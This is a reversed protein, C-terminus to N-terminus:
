QQKSKFLGYLTSGALFVVVAHAHAYCTTLAAAAAAVSPACQPATRACRDPLVRPVCAGPCVSGCGGALVRCDLLHGLCRYHITGQKATVAIALSVLRGGSGALFIGMLLIVIGLLALGSVVAQEAQSERSKPKGGYVEEVVPAQVKVKARRRSGKMGKMAEEFAVGESDPSPSPGAADDARAEKRREEILYEAATSGPCSTDRELCKCHRSGPRIVQFVVSDM